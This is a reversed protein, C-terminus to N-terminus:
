KPIVVRDIGHIMGNSCIIDPIIITAGGFLVRDDVETIEVTTGLRTKPFNLKKITNYSLSGFLIHYQILLLLKGQPDEV